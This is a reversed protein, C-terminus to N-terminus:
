IRYFIIEIRVGNNVLRENFKLARFQDGWLYNLPGLGELM